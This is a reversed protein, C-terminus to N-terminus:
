GLKGPWDFVRKIGAFPKDHGTVEVTAARPVFGRPLRIRGEVKQYFQFRFDLGRAVRGTLEQLSLRTRRGRLDGDVFLTLAGEAVNDDKTDQTLVVRFRYSGPAGEPVVQFDQIRFGTPTSGKLIGRYFAVEQRLALNEDQMEQLHRDVEGYARREVQRKRRLAALEDHLTNNERAMSDLAAVLQGRDATAVALGAAATESLNQYAIYGALAFLLVAIVAELADRLPRHHRVVLRKGTARSTVRM